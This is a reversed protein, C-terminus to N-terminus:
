RLTTDEYRKGTEIMEPTGIPANLQDFDLMHERNGANSGTAALTAFYGRLAHAVARVTGGPFIALSYGIAQLDALSQVPTKGGMNALLPVRGEFQKCVRQMQATTRVAEIFLM